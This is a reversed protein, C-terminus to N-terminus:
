PAIEEVTIEARPRDVDPASRVVGLRDIQADDTYAIGTLSDAACKVFNAVDRRRADPAHLVIALSIRGAFPARPGWQETAAAHARTRALKYAASDARSSVPGRHRNDSILCSWPLIVTVPGVPARIIQAAMEREEVTMVSGKAFRRRLAIAPEGVGAARLEDDTVTAM